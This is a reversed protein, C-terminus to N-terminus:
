QKGLEYDWPETNHSQLMAFSTVNTAILRYTAPVSEHANRMKEM